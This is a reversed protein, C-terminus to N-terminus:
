VHTGTPLQLFEAKELVDGRRKNAAESKSREAVVTVSSPLGVQTDSCLMMNVEFPEEM